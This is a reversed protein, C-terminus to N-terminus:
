EIKFHNLWEKKRRFEGADNREMFIANQERDILMTDPIFDNDYPKVKFIITDGIMFYKGKFRENYGFAGDVKNV